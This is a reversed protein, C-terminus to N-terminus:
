AVVRCRSASTLSPAVRWWRSANPVTACSRNSSVIASQRPRRSAINSAIQMSLTPFRAQIVVVLQRQVLNQPAVTHLQHAHQRRRRDVADKGIWRIVQLQAALQPPGVVTQHVADVVLPVPEGIEGGVICEGSVPQGLAVPQQALVARQPHDAGIVVDKADACDQLIEAEPDEVIHNPAFGVRHGIEAAPAEGVGM